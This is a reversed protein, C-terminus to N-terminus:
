FMILDANYDISTHSFVGAVGMPLGFALFPIVQKKFNLYGDAVIGTALALCGGVM